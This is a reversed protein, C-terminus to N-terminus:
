HWAVRDLQPKKNLNFEGKLRCNQQLLATNGANQPQQMKKGGGAGGRSNRTWSYKSHQVHSKRGLKEFRFATKGGQMLVLQCFCSRDYTHLFTQSFYTKEHSPKAYLISFTKSTASEANKVTAQFKEKSSWFSTKRSSKIQRLQLNRVLKETFIENGIPM